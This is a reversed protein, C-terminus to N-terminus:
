LPPPHSVYLVCHSNTGNYTTRGGSRKCHTCRVCYVGWLSVGCVGLLGCLFVSVVCLVQEVTDGVPACAISYMRPALAPLADLLADLPPQCSAFQQLLTLLSPRTATIQTAYADRGERSALHRLTAAETPNTCHAALLNLLSKRPPSTLDVGVQHYYPLPTPTTHSPIIHSM